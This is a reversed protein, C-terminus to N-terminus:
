PVPSRTAAPPNGIAVVRGASAISAPRHAVVIRTQRTAEAALNGLVEAETELDLASTAEDLVLIPADVLLARALAIRQREGGSLTVGWEGVLTDYGDPLRDIFRDACAIRAVREVQAQSADPRGYTINDRISRHFLVPDQPAIAVSRRLSGLSVGAIDQGDILIRGAQPEHLRHLLKILTSKGSGSPGIIAVTEGSGIALHLKDLVPPLESDYAFSVGEFRVEGGAVALAPAQTILPEAAIGAFRVADATDDIGKQLERVNDGLNRLYGSMVLFATMAFAVDGPSARGALWARVMMGTAGIQLLLLVINQALGLDVFRGWTRFVSARWRAMDAAVREKERAEASFAKVAPNGALADALTANAVADLETSQLSAPRVYHATLGLNLVTFALVAGMGVMGAIPNRLFLMVALGGLVLLAPGIRITLADTIEDYGWMARSVRRVIGGTLASTHWAAPLAQVRAFTEGVMEEMNRAAVPIWLRHAINRAIAFGAFMVVFTGWARWVAGSEARGAAIVDVLTASASPLALDFGTAILAFSVGAAFTLRRRWWYAAVFSVVSGASVTATGNRTSARM